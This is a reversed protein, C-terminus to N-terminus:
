KFVVTANPDMTNQISSVSGGSFFRSRVAFDAEQHTQMNIMNLMQSQLQVNAQYYPNTPCAPVMLYPLAEAHTVVIMSRTAAAFGVHALYVALGKHTFRGFECVSHMSPNTAKLDDYKKQGAAQCILPVIYTNWRELFSDTIIGTQATRRIDRVMTNWKNSLCREPPEVEGGVKQMVDQTCAYYHDVYNHIDQTEIFLYRTHGAMLRSIPGLMNVTEYQHDNISKINELYLELAACTNTCQGLSQLDIELQTDGPKFERQVFAALHTNRHNHFPVRQYFLILDKVPVGKCAPYAKRITAPICDVTVTHRATLIHPLPLCAAM